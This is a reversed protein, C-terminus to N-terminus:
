FFKTIFISLVIVDSVYSLLFDEARVMVTSKPRAVPMAERDRRRHSDETDARNKQLMFAGARM